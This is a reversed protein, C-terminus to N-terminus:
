SRWRGEEINWDPHTDLVVVIDAVRVGLADAIRALVPLSPLHHGHELRSLVPAHIGTFKEMGRVSIGEAERLQRVRNGVLKAM